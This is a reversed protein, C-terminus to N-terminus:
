DGVTGTVYELLSSSLNDLNQQSNSEVGMFYIANKNQIFHSILATKGVRRRGYMVVFEFKDSAYLRNLTALEKERGVFM